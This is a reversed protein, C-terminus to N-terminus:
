LFKNSSEIITGISYEYLETKLRKSDKSLQIVDTAHMEVILSIPQHETSKPLWSSDFPDNFECKLRGSM